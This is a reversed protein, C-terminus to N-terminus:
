LGAVNPMFDRWSLHRAFPRRLGDQLQMTSRGGDEDDALQVTATEWNEAIYVPSISYHGVYPSGAAGPIKRVITGTFMDLLLLHRDSGHYTSLLALDGLVHTLHGRQPLRYTAAIAGSDFDLLRIRQTNAQPTPRASMLVALLRRHSLPMALYQVASDLWGHQLLRLRDRVRIGADAELSRCHGKAKLANFVCITVFQQLPGLIEVCVYGRDLARIKLNGARTSESWISSFYGTHLTRINGYIRGDAHDRTDSMSAMSTHHGFAVEIVKWYLRSRSGNVACMVVRDARATVICVDNYEQSFATEREASPASGIAYEYEDFFDLVTLHCPEFEGAADLLLGHMFPETCAADHATQYAVVWRGCKDRISAKEPLQRAPGGEQPRAWISFNKQGPTLPHLVICSDRVDRDFSLKGQHQSSGLRLLSPVRATDAAATSVTYLQSNRRHRLLLECPTFGFSMWDSPTCQSEAALRRHRVSHGLRWNKETQQRAIFACVWDVQSGVVSTGQSKALRARYATLWFAEAADGSFRARYLRRWMSQANRLIGWLTRSAACLRLAASIDTYLATQQWLEPSLRLVGANARNSTM